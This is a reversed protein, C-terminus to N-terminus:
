SITSAIPSLFQLYIITALCLAIVLAIIIRNRTEVQKIMGIVRDLGPVASKEIKKLNRGTKKLKESQSLMQHSSMTGM